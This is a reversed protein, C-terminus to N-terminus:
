LLATFNTKLFKAGENIIWLGNIKFSVVSIKFKWNMEYSTCLAYVAYQNGKNLYKPSSFSFSMDLFVLKFKLLGDGLLLLQVQTM